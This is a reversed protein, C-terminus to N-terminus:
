IRLQARPVGLHNNMTLLQSLAIENALYVSIKLPPMGKNASTALHWSFTLSSIDSKKVKRKECYTLGSFCPSSVSQIFSYIFSCFFLPSHLRLFPNVNLECVKLEKWEHFEASSYWCLELDWVSCLPGLSVLFAGLFGLSSWQARTMLTATFVVNHVTFTQHRRFSIMNTHMCLNANHLVSSTQALSIVCSVSAHWENLWAASASKVSPM